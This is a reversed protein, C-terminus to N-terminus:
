MVAYKQALELLTGKCSAHNPLPGPGREVPKLPPGGVTERTSSADFPRVVVAWSSIGLRGWVFCLRNENSGAPSKLGPRDRRSFLSAVGQVPHSRHSRFLQTSLFPVFSCVSFGRQISRGRRVQAGNSLDRGCDEREQCRRPKGEGHLGEVGRRARGSQWSKPTVGTM